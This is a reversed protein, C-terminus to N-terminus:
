DNLLQEMIEVMEADFVCPDDLDVWSLSLETFDVTGTASAGGDGALGDVDSEALLRDLTTLMDWQASM